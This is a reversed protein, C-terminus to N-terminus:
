LLMSQLFSEFAASSDEGADARAGQGVGQGRSAGEPAAEGQGRSPAAAGDQSSREGADRGLAASRGAAPAGLEAAPRAGGGGGGSAARRKDERPQESAGGHARKKAPAASGVTDTPQTPARADTRSLKPACAQCLRLKVLAHQVSGREEYRFNVEFSCLGAVEACGRAACIFQGKGSVVEAETRWRLGVHGRAHQSLDAIAYEKFLRAWYKKALREEWVLPPAGDPEDRWLFRSHARAIEYESMGPPPPAGSSAHRVGYEAVFRKHRQYANEFDGVAPQRRLERALLEARDVRAPPQAAQAGPRNRYASGPLQAAASTHVGRLSAAM